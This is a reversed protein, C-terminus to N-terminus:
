SAARAPEQLLAAITNSLLTLHLPKRLVATVGDLNAQSAATLVVVPIAALRHDRLQLERFRWGDLKPMKLDLLILDPRETQMLVLAQEGDAAALPRYGLDELFDRVGERIGDDDDVVLVTKGPGPARKAEKPIEPPDDDAESARVWTDVESLKLKWLKGIKKAPLGRKEIWRYVSDKTVGLHEAVADISVWPESGTVM